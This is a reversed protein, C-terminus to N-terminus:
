QKCYNLTKTKPQHFIKSYKNAKPKYKQYIIHKNNYNNHNFKFLNKWCPKTPRFLYSKQNNTM